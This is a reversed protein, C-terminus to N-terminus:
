RKTVSGLDEALAADLNPKENGFQVRDALELVAALQFLPKPVGSDVPHAFRGMQGVPIAANADNDGVPGQVRSGAVSRVYAADPNMRRWIGAEALGDYAQQIAPFAPCAQVHDVQGAVLIVKLDPNHKKLLPLAPLSNRISWYSNYEEPTPFFGPPGAEGFVNKEHAADLVEKSYYVKLRDGEYQAVFAFAWDEHADIKGNGNRDFPQRPQHAPTVDCRDNGNNDLYM